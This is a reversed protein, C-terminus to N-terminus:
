ALSHIEGSTSFFDISRGSLPSFTCWAGQRRRRCRGDPAGCLTALHKTCKKMVKRAVLRSKEVGPHLLIWKRALDTGQWGQGWAHRSKHFSWTPGLLAQLLPPPHCLDLRAKSPISRLPCQDQRDPPLAAFSINQGVLEPQLRSFMSKSVFPQTPPACGHM